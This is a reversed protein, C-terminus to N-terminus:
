ISSGGSGDRDNAAMMITVVAARETV